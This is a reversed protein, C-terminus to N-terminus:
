LADIYNRAKRAAGNMSDAVGLKFRFQKIFANGGVPYIQISGTVNKGAGAKGGSTPIILHHGKYETLHMGKNKLFTSRRKSKLSTLSKGM